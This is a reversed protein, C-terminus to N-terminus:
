QRQQNSHKSSISTQLKLADDHWGLATYVHALSNMANLTNQHGEGLLSTRQKVVDEALPLAEKYRGLKSYSAALNNIATLTYLHNDGLLRRRKEVVVE